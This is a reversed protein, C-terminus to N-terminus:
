QCREAPRIGEPLEIDPRAAAHPGVLLQEALIERIQALEPRGRLSVLDEDQELRRLRRYDIERRAVMHLFALADGTRGQLATACALNYFPREWAPDARAADAWLAEAERYAGRRHLKLARRHLERAQVRDGSETGLVRLEEVMSAGASRPAAGDAGNARTAGAPADGVGADTSLQAVSSGDRVTASADLEGGAEVAAPETAGSDRGRGESCSVLALVLAVLGFARVATGRCPEGSPRPCARM